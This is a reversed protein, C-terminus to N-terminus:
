AIRSVLPWTERAPESPNVAARRARRATRGSPGADRAISLLDSVVAVATADGGAGRGAYTTDGGYQGSVVVVNECGDVRALPSDLPVLQPGVSASITGDSDIEARAVQRITSGGAHAAAFDAPGIGAISRCRIDSTPVHVRLGVECLIALKARADFGELDATPDAEAYGLSQAEALAAEFSAGVSEIRTLIYNCTGNLIGAVKTIRDAALGQQIARIVPIGGAVAGEFGVPRGVRRALALLEPGHEAIVQKNATVVPKGALLARRLWERAQEIGGVLEVLIDIDDALLDEFRHTWEIDAPLSAPRPKADRACVRAVRVDHGGREELLRVVATGVTGYGILGVNLPRASRHRRDRATTANWNTQSM